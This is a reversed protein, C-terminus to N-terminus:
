VVLRKNRQYLIVEIPFGSDKDMHVPEGTSLISSFMERVWEEMQNLSEGSLLALGMNKAVYHTRTRENSM